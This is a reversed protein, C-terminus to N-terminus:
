IKLINEIKLAAADISHGLYLGSITTILSSNQSFAAGGFVLRPNPKANAGNIMLHPQRNDFKWSFMALNKASRETAASFCILDPQITDVVQCFKSPTFM